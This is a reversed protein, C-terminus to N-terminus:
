LNIGLKFHLNFRYDSNGIDPRKDISPVLSVFLMGLHYRAETGVGFYLATGQSDRDIMGWKLQPIIYLKDIPELAYGLQAFYSLYSDEFNVYEANISIDFGNYTIGAGAVANLVFNNDKDIAYNSGITFYRDDMQANAMITFLMVIITATIKRM